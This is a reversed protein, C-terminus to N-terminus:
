KGEINRRNRINQQLNRGVIPKGGPREYLLAGKNLADLESNASIEGSEWKKVIEDALSRMSSSWITRTSTTTQMERLHKPHVLLPYFAGAAAALEIIRFDETEIQNSAAKLAIGTVPDRGGNQQARDFIDQSVARTGPFRKLRSSNNERLFKFLRELFWARAESDTPAHCGAERAAVVALSDFDEPHGGRCFDSPGYWVLRTPEEETTIGAVSLLPERDHLELFAKRIDIPNPSITM